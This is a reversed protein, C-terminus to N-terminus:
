ARGELDAYTDQFCESEAGEPRVEEFWDSWPRAQADTMDNLETFYGAAAGKLDATMAALDPFHQFSDWWIARGALFGSAGAGYAYHLVRRFAAKTAGASLMVWPRGALRGMEAFLAATGRDGPDPVEKAPIPSELKFVDVGYDPKAFEAVTQLVHDARKGQQEVYDKTQEADGALPYVLMELLFPIDYRACAEGTRKAFDQQNRRSAADQEPHYWTLVKVADGGARKIKSVSWADIEKSLRGDEGEGFNSDELTVVLGHHPALITMADALAYTPDTLVATAQPALSEMLARKVARVDAYRAEAEGRAERVRNKIPPRQDVALMKFRGSPDAMRRLGWFKGPTM